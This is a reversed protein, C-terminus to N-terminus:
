AADPEVDRASIEGDAGVHLARLQLERDLFNHVVDHAVNREANSLFTFRANFVLHKVIGGPLQLWHTLQLRHRGVLKSRDTASIMIDIKEGIFLIANPDTHMKTRTPKAVFGRRM